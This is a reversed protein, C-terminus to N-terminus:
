LLIRKYVTRCRGALHCLHSAYSVRPCLPGAAGLPTKIGTCKYFASQIQSVHNVQRPVGENLIKLCGSFISTLKVFKACQDCLSKFQINQQPFSFIQNKERQESLYRSSLYSISIIFCMAFMKSM